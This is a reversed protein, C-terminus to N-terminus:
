TDSPTAIKGSDLLFQHLGRPLTEILEGHFLKHHNGELYAHQAQSLRNLSKGLVCTTQISLAIGLQKVKELHPKATQNQALFCHGLECYAIGQDKLNNLPILVTIAEEVRTQALSIDSTTLRELRAIRLLTIAKNEPDGVESAIALAQDCLRRAIDVRGQDFHYQALNSLILGEIRRDGVKNVVVLAEKFLLNAQEYQEQDLYYGALKCLWVGEFRRDNIERSIALAKEYLKQAEDLYGRNHLLVALNGLTIGQFLRDGTEDSILLAQNYLERAQDLKNQNDFIGALNSLIRGETRRDGVARAVDLAQENCQKAQEFAGQDQHFNALNGLIICEIIREGIELALTLAQEFFARAKESHGQNKYLIALNSLTKVERSRDGVKRTIALDQEYILRAEDLFGQAYHIVAIDGLINSVLMHEGLERAIKLAHEYFQRAEKFLGKNYRLNALYSLIKSEQLRDAASRALDLAEEYFHQAEAMRGAGNHVDGLCSLSEIEQNLDGLESAAKVALEHQMLAEEKKGKPLLVDSGFENRAKICERSITPALKFYARYLREGESRNYHKVMKRAAALYCTRANALDGAEEWHRGLEALFQDRRSSFLNEIGIAAAAHLRRREQNKLQSLAVERIKDHLFRITDTTHKEIIQRQLLEELADDIKEGELGTITKILSLNAERGIVAAARILAQTDDRLGALRRAILGQLSAPLTISAYREATSPGDEAEIDVQWEGQEDRWLIGAEVAARIYEAVFLPNGESHQTLYRCFLAPPPSMALMDSIITTIEDEQLRCLEINLVLSSTIIKQLDPGVAEIRYTGIILIPTEEFFRSRVIFELFCLSLEDAWHLDDLIIISPSGQCFMKLTEALYNFLRIRAAEASLEAPDAYSEQGPLNGLAPEYLSLVKGRKGFIQDTDEKGRERCRDAMIQLPKLFAELPRNSQDSCEGTLCLFLKKVSERGFEMVMRTKGVGSEGGILALSGGKEHLQYRRTRLGVLEKERGAFRPRYLYTRPTLERLCLDQDGVCQAIKFAVTDAYGLRDNPDRALLRMVLEDIEPPVAENIRSPRVPTALQEGEVTVVEMAKTYPPDGSLLEYFVCGLAYLDARADVLEGKIQEPALYDLTGRWGLEVALLERSIEDSFQVTLGFDVLVPLGDEKIFINEPKIDRHVLGQGHLYALPACIRSVLVLIESLTLRVIHKSATRTGRSPQRVNAEEFPLGHATTENTEFRAPLSSTWWQQRQRPQKVESLCDSPMPDGTQHSGSMQESIIYSRLPIGELLDMAYWPIGQHLGEDLIRVIGPHRIQALARIEQRISDLHFKDLARITKVAVYAGSDQHQGTYVVGMGGFGLSEKIHYPGIKRPQKEM